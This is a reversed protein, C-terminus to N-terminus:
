LSLEYEWQPMEQHVSINNVQQIQEYRTYITKMLEKIAEEDKNFREARQWKWQSEINPDAGADLIMNLKEKFRTNDLPTNIHRKYLHAECMIGLATKGSRSLANINQIKNLVNQFLEIPLFIDKAMAMLLNVGEKNAINPDAGAKLLEDIREAKNRHNGYYLTNLVPTNGYENQKNVNAGAKLLIKMLTMSKNVVAALDLASCGSQVTADIDIGKEILFRVMTNTNFSKVSYKIKILKNLSNYNKGKSILCTLLTENHADRCNIDAGADLLCALIDKRHSVVADFSLANHGYDIPFGNSIVVNLKNRFSYFEADGSRILSSLIYYIEDDENPQKM